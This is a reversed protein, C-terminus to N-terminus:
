FYKVFQENTEAVTSVNIERFDEQDGPGKFERILKYIYKYDGVEGEGESLDSGFVYYYRFSSKKKNFIKAFSNLGFRYNKSIWKLLVGTISETSYGYFILLPVF